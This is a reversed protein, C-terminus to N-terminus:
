LPSSRFAAADSGGFVCYTMEASSLIVDHPLTPDHSNNDKNNSLIVVLWFIMNSTSTM